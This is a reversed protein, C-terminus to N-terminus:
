VAHHYLNSFLKVVAQGWGHWHLSHCLGTAGATASHDGNEYMREPGINALSSRVLFHAQGRVSHM